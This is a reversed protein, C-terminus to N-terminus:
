AYWRPFDVTKTTLALRAMKKADPNGAVVEELVAQYLCYEIEHATEPDDKIAHISWVCSKIDYLDLKNKM